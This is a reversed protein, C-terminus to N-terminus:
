FANLWIRLSGCEDGVGDEELDSLFAFFLPFFMM